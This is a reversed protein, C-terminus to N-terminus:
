NKQDEHRTKRTYAKKKGSNRRIQELEAMTSYKPRSFVDKLETLYDMCSALRILNGLSILGKQEFRAVNAPRVGSQAAVAERTLGKEVRRLRFDDALKRAVEEDTPPM